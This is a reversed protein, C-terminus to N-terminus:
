SEIKLEKLLNEIPHAYGTVKCLVFQCMVM